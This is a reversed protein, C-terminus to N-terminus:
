SRHVAMISKTTYITRSGVSSGTAVVSEREMIAKLKDWLNQPDSASINLSEIVIPARANFEDGGFAKFNATATTDAMTAEFRAAALKFGQPMNLLAENVEKLTDAHEDLADVDELVSLTLDSVADSTADFSGEGTGVVSLKGAAEASAITTDKLQEIARNVGNMNVEAKRVTDAWGELFGFPKMGFVKIGGIKDFITAIADIIGNWVSGIGKVVYAVALGVGKVVTFLAHFVPTLGELVPALQDAVIILIENSIAILPKIAKMVPELVEVLAGIVDNFMTIIETFSQTQTLLYGIAGAIAGFPGGASAGQSTASILGGAQGSIGGILQGGLEGGASQAAETTSPVVAEVFDAMKNALEPGVIDALSNFADGLATTGGTASDILASSANLMTHELDFAVSDAVREVMAFREQLVEDADLVLSERYKATEDSVSKAFIEGVSALTMDLSIAEGGYGFDMAKAQVALATRTKKAANEVQSSADSASDSIGSFLDSFGDKIPQLMMQVGTGFGAKVDELISTNAKAAAEPDYTTSGPTLQGTALQQLRKRANEAAGVAVIIATMSALVAAAPIALGKFATTLMGVGASIQPLVLAVGALSASLGAVVTAGIALQGIMQKAEPTLSAIAMTASQVVDSISRLGDGIGVGNILKGVEEALDGVDNKVRELQGSFSGAMTEAVGGFRSDLIEVMTALRKTPDMAAFAAAEAQNLKIGYDDLTVLGSAISKGVMKAAANLDVRMAKSLDAISPLLTETENQTFGFTALMGQVSHTVDDAVNTLNQLAGAFDIARQKDLAEGSAKFSAQLRLIATEGEAFKSLSVGIAASMGAFAAASADAVNKAVNNWKEMNERSKDMERTFDSTLAELAVSITGASPMM